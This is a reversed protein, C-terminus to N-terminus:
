ELSPLPLFEVSPELLSNGRQCCLGLLIRFLKRSLVPAHEAILELTGEAGLFRPVKQAREEIITGGLCMLPLVDTKERM